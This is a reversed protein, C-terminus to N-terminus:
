VFGYHAPTCDPESRCPAVPPQVSSEQARAPPDLEGAALRAEPRGASCARLFRALCSGDRPLASRGVGSAPGTRDAEWPHESFFREAGM